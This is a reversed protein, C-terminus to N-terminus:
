VRKFVLLNLYIDKVDISFHNSIKKQEGLHGQFFIDKNRAMSCSQPMSLLVRCVNKLFKTSDWCLLLKIDRVYTFEKSVKEWNGCPLAQFILKESQKYSKPNYTIKKERVFESFEGYPIKRLLCKKPGYQDSQKKRRWRRISGCKSMTKWGVPQALAALVFVNKHFTSRNSSTPFFYLSWHTNHRWIHRSLFIM